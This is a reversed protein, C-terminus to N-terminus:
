DLETSCLNCVEWNFMEVLLHGIKIKILIVTSFLLVQEIEDM